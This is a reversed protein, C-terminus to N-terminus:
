SLTVPAFTERRQLFFHGTQGGAGQGHGHETGHKGNAADRGGERLLMVVGVLFSRLIPSRLALFLTGLLALLGRLGLLCTLHRLPDHWPQLRFAVPNPAPLDPLLGFSTTGLAGHFCRFAVQVLALLQLLVAFVPSLLCPLANFFRLNIVFACGFELALRLLSVVHGPAHSLLARLSLAPVVVLLLSRAVGLRTCFGALTRSGPLM